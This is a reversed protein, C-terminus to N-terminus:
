PAKRPAPAAKGKRGRGTGARPANFYEDLTDGCQKLASRGVLSYNAVGRLIAKLEDVVLAPLPAFLKMAGLLDALQGVCARYAGQRQEVLPSRNLDLLKICLEGRLTKGFLFGSKPMYEFHDAPDDRVPHIFVPREGGEKGPQRAHTSGPLLPFLAGKRQNCVACSPLLNTWEYALWHYGPHRKGARDISVVREEDLVENKPRFHDLQDWSSVQLPSECYVCKGHYLRFLDDKMRKYLADRVAFKGTKKLQARLEKHGNRADGRWKQWEPTRPETLTLRIM